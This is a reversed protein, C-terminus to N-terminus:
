VAHQFARANVLNIHGATVPHYQVQTQLLAAALQQQSGAAIGPHMQRLFLEVVGIHGGHQTHQQPLLQGGAAKQTSRLGFALANQIQAEGSGVFHAEDSFFVQDALKGATQGIHDEGVALTQNQATHLRYVM